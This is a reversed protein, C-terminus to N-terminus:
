DLNICETDETIDIWDLQSLKLIRDQIDIGPVYKEQWESYTAPGSLASNTALSEETEVSLIVLYKHVQLDTNTAPFWFAGEEFQGARDFLESNVEAQELNTFLFNATFLNRGPYLDPWVYGITHITTYPQGDKLTKSIEDDIWAVHVPSLLFNELSLVAVRKKANDTFVARVFLDDNNDGTVLMQVNIDDDIKLWWDLVKIADLELDEVAKVPLCPIVTNGCSASLFSFVFAFVLSKYNRQSHCLAKM